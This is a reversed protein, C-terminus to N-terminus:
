RNKCKIFDYYEKGTGTLEEPKKIIEEYWDDAYWQGLNDLFYDGFHQFYDDAVGKNKIPSNYNNMLVGALVVIYVWNIYSLICHCGPKTKTKDPAPAFQALTAITAAQSKPYVL